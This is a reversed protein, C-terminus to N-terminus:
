RSSRSNGEVASSFPFRCGWQSLPPSCFQVVEVWALPTPPRNGSSPLLSARRGRGRKVQGQANQRRLIEKGVLPALRKSRHWGNPSFVAQLAAGLDPRLFLAQSRLRSLKDFHDTTTTTTSTASNGKIREPCPRGAPQHQTGPCSCLYERRPNLEDAFGCLSDIRDFPLLPPCTLVQRNWGKGTGQGAAEEARTLHLGKNQM